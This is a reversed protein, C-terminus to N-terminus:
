CPSGLLAKRPQLWASTSLPLGEVQTLEQTQPCYATLTGGYCAGTDVTLIGNARRRVQGAPTHGVIVEGFRGDYRDWFPQRVSLDPQWSDPDFGAHTAVWGQGWYALPLHELREIWLRCRRDGLQRYTDCGALDRQATWSGRRLARTLRLEHNGKLWVGRGSEVLSWALEMAREIQPGRNIVDGCLILLDTSPLREVLAQLADACGHVDGIVWHRTPNSRSTMRVVKRSSQGTALNRDAGQCARAWTDGAVKGADAAM